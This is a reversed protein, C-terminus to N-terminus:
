TSRRSQTGSISTGTYNIGYLGESDESELFIRECTGDESDSEHQFEGKWKKRKKRRKQLSVKEKWIGAAVSWMTGGIHIKRDTEEYKLKVALDHWEKLKNVGVNRKENANRRLLFGGGNQGMALRPPIPAAAYTSYSASSNWVFHFSMPAYPRMPITLEM